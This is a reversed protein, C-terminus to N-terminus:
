PAEFGGKFILDSGTVVVANSYESTDDTTCPM